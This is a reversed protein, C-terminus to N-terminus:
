CGWMVIRCDEEHIFFKSKLCTDNHKAVYHQILNIIYQVAFFNYELDAYEDEAYPNNLFGKAKLEAESHDFIKKIANEIEVNGNCNGIMESLAEKPTYYMKPREKVEIFIRERIDILKDWTTVGLVPYKTYFDLKTVDFGGDPNPVYDELSKKWGEETAENGLLKFYMEKDKETDPKRDYHTVETFPGNILSNVKISFDRDGCDFDDVNVFPMSNGRAGFGYHLKKLEEPITTLWVWRDGDHYEIATYASYSM